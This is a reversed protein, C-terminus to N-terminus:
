KTPIPSFSNFRLIQFQIENFFSQYNIHHKPFQVTRPIFMMQSSLMLWRVASIILIYHLMPFFDCCDTWSFQHMYVCFVCCLSPSLAAVCASTGFRCSVAGAYHDIAFLPATTQKTVKSAAATSQFLRFFPKACKYKKVQSIVFQNIGM